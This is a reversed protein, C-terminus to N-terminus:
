PSLLDGQHLDRESKFFEKYTGNMIVSFWPTVVCNFLLKFIGYPFGFGCLVHIFFRWDVRDYANSMDIKVMVNGGRLKKHLSKIMEQTLFIRFFVGVRGLLM